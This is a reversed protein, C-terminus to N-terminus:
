KFIGGVSFVLNPGAGAVVYKIRFNGGLLTVEEHTPATDTGTVETFTSFYDAPGTDVMDVWKGSAPDQVQPTIVLTVATQTLSTPTTAVTEKDIELATFTVTYLTGVKTVAVSGVVDAEDKYAVKLGVIAAKFNAASIDWALAGSTDGDYTVTFTGGDANDVSFTHITDIPAEYEDDIELTAPTTPAVGGETLSSFDAVLSAEGLALLPITIVFSGATGTVTIEDYGDGTISRLATQITTNNADHAIDTQMDDDIGIDFTGGDASGIELAWTQAQGASGAQVEKFTVAKTRNALTTINVYVNAKELGSVNVAESFGSVDRQGSALIAQGRGLQEKRIAIDAVPGLLETGM